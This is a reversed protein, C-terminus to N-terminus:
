EYNILGLKRVLSNNLNGNTLVKLFPYEYRYPRDVRLKRFLEPKDPRLAIERLDADYEKIPHLRLILEEESYDLDALDIKKEDYFHEIDPLEFNFYDALQQVIYKTANLKAQESYGAIHPTAIFAREALEPRFDPENEWVDIVVDNMSHSSLSDLLASEDVVGGRSANIILEFNNERLKKEDLWHYTSFEGIRKLPVHFTLIDCSLVESLSASKYDSNRLEKPPDHSVFDIDFKKLQNIVSSGTAGAGIVGVKYDSLDKDKKLSWLLLSTMVYEGVARANCGKADIVSINNSEFYSKDIHDSGSSATGVMKLSSPIARISKAHLETVTRVLLVDFGSLEPLPKEPDFTSLSVGDPLFERLKYINKDALINIM